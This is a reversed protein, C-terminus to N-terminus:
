SVGNLVSAKKEAAARESETQSRFLLVALWFAVAFLVPATVVGPFYGGRFIAITSHVIGNGLEIGVWLWAWRRASPWASRVPVLYCWLGFAVLATNILAFGTALDDSLLSSVFRAPAFVEYLGTAYEEISHAAQVLILLSFGLQSRRQM